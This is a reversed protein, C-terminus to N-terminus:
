TLRSPLLHRGSSTPFVKFVYVSGLTLCGRASLLHCELEPAVLGPKPSKKFYQRKLSTDRTVCCMVAWPRILQSCNLRLNIGATSTIPHMHISGKREKRLRNKELSIAIVNVRPTHTGLNPSVSQFSHVAFDIHEDSRGCSPSTAIIHWIPYVYCSSYHFLLKLIIATSM